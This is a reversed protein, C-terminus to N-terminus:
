YSGGGNGGGTGPEKYAPRSAEPGSGGGRQSLAACASLLTALLWLIVVFERAGKHMRSGKGQIRIKWAEEVERASLAYTM